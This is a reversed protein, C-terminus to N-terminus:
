AKVPQAGSISIDWRFEMEGDGIHEIPMADVMEGACLLTMTPDEPHEVWCMAPFHCVFTVRDRRIFRVAPVTVGAYSIEWPGSDHLARELRRMAFLARSVEIDIAAV